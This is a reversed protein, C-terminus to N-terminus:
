KDTIECAYNWISEGVTFNRTIEDHLHSIFYFFSSDTDNYVWTNESYQIALLNSDIVLVAKLCSNSPLANMKETLNEISKAGSYSAIFLPVHGNRKNVQFFGSSESKVPNLKEVEKEVQNWQAFLNSKVSIVASVMEALHLRENSSSQAPFSISHIKEAIIDLQGSTKGMKDVIFGSSFRFPKPYAAELYTRLFVERENGVVENPSGKGAKHAALLGDRVGQVRSFLPEIKKPLDLRITKSMKNKGQLSIAALPLGFQLMFFFFICCMQYPKVTLALIATRM